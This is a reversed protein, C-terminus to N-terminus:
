IEKSEIDCSDNSLQAQFQSDTNQKTLERLLMTAYTGQPLIFKLLIDRLIALDSPLKENISSDIGLYTIFVFLNLLRYYPSNVIFIFSNFMPILDGSEDLFSTKIPNDPDDCNQKYFIYNQFSKNFLTNDAYIFLNKM